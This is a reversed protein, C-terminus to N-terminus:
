ILDVINDIQITNDGYNSVALKGNYADVGHPFDYGTLTKVYNLKDDLFNFVIVEDSPQLTIFIFDNYVSISDSQGHFRIEDIKEMKIYDFVYLITDEVVVEGKTQPRSKSSTIFLKNDYLFVDKPYYEFENFVEYKETNIDLFILGRDKEGACTLVINENDIVKCGHTKINPIIIDKKFVIENDNLEFISAGGITTGMSPFNSTIILNGKSHILDPYYNTTVENLIEWNNVDILFIKKSLFQAAILLDNNIYKVGTATAHRNREGAYVKPFNTLDFDPLSYKM